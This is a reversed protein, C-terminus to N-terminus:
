VSEPQEISSLVMLLYAVVLVIALLILFIIVLQDSPTAQYFASLKSWMRSLWRSFPVILPVAYQIVGIAILGLVSGYKAANLWSEFERSEGIVDTYFLLFITIVMLILVASYRSLRENVLAFGVFTSLVGVVFWITRGQEETTTKGLYYGFSIGLLATVFAKKTDGFNPTTTADQIATGLFFLTGVFTIGAVFALPKKHHRLLRRLLGRNETESDESM